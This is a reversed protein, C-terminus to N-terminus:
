GRELLVVPWGGGPLRGQRAAFVRGGSAARGFTAPEFTTLVRAQGPQRICSRTATNESDRAPSSNRAAPGEQVAFGHLRRARTCPRIESGRDFAIFIQSCRFSSRHKSNPPSRSASTRLDGGALWRDSAWGSAARRADGSERESAARPGSPPCSIPPAAEEPGLNLPWREPEDDRCGRSPKELDDVAANGLRGHPRLLRQLQPPPRRPM